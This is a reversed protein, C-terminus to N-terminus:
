CDCCCSDCAVDGHICRSHYMNSDQDYKEGLVHQYYIFSCCAAYFEPQSQNSYSRTQLRIDELSLISYAEEYEIM